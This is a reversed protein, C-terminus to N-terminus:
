GLRDENRLVADAPSAMHLRAREHRDLLDAYKERDEPSWAGQAMGLCGVFFQSEEFNLGLLVEQGSANIALLGLASFRERLESPITLTHM